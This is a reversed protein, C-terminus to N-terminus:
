LYGFSDRKRCFYPRQVRLRILVGSRIESLGGRPPREKKVCTMERIDALSATSPEEVPVHTGHIHPSNLGGCNPPALCQRKYVDSAASSYLPTSRPPRRIM